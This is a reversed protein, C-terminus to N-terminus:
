SSDRCHRRGSHYKDVDGQMKKRIENAEETDLSPPKKGVIEMLMQILDESTLM